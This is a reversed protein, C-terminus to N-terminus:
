QALCQTYIDSIALSTELILEKSVVIENMASNFDEAQLYNNISVLLTEIDSLSNEINKISEEQEPCALYLLPLSKEIVDIAQEIQETTLGELEEQLEKIKEVILKKKAQFDARAVKLIAQIDETSKASLLKQELDKLYAITNDIETTTNKKTEESVPMKSVVKKSKELKEIITTIAKTVNEDTVFKNIVTESITEPVFLTPVADSISTTGLKETLNDRLAAEAFSPTILMITCIISLIIKKM